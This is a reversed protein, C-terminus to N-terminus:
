HSINRTIRHNDANEATIMTGKREVVTYPTKSFRSYLKNTRDQKVLVTDGVSIQSHKANRRTDAHSKHYEQYQSENQKASQHKNVINKRELVPIKGRVTRNFLLECPPVKTVSHPTTRYSLLFRHLEQRWPKGEVIVAQITKALPQNFREVEGNAQPWRPISQEHTIGLANCYKCFEEGQFPPRNDSKIIEPIRHVSFIRDLKLIIVSAKTSKVIEVEPFRSYRDILVLLYEGSPLPRYFDIM